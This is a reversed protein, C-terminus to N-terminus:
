EAGPLNGGQGAIIRGFFFIDGRADRIQNAVYSGALEVDAFWAIMARPDREILQVEHQHRSRREVQATASESAALSMVILEQREHAAARATDPKIFLDNTFNGDFRM